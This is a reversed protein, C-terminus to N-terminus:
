TILKAIGEERTEVFNVTRSKNSERIFDKMSKSEIDEFDGYIMIRLGYTSFKQLIEGALGSKLEFFSTDDIQDRKLVVGLYDTFMLHSILDMGSEIDQLCFDLPEFIKYQAATDTNYKM